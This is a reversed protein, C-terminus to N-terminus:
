QRDSKGRYKPLDESKTSMAIKEATTKWDLKDLLMYFTSFATLATDFNCLLSHKPFCNSPFELRNFLQKEVLKQISEGIYRNIMM